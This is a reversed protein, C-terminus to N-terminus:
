FVAKIFNQSLAGCRLWSRAMYLKTAMHAARRRRLQPVSGAGVMAALTALQRADLAMAEAMGAHPPELQMDESQLVFLCM